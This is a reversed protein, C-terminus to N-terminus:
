GLSPLVFELLKINQDLGGDGFFTPSFVGGCVCYVDVCLM